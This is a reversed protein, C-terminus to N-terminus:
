VDRPEANPTIEKIALILSKLDVLYEEPVFDFVDDLTPAVTIALDVFALVKRFGASRNGDGILGLYERQAPLMSLNMTEDGEHIPLSVRRHDGGLRKRGAGERYGGHGTNSM